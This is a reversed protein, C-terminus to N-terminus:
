SCFFISQECIEIGELQHKKEELTPCILIAKNCNFKECFQQLGKGIKQFADPRYKVEVPIIQDNEIKVFDVEHHYTDRWFYQYPSLSIIFNEALKGIDVFDAIATCFSPSALFFKKHRKESSLQNRSFNYIKKVLFSEELYYFYNALTKNSFGITQALGQYDIINGPSQGIIRTIKWLLEPHDVPFVQPIDEYIIKKLVSTLYEKKDSLSKMGITEIFQSALYIEFEAKIATAFLFPKRALEEKDCFFLYENFNLPALYLSFIRGALSEQTKKKLFLSTSGSIFFKINPYLDYYVKLQNQFNPVKQIEDLFIYLTKTTKYDIHTAQQFHLFLEDLNLAFEDFSFYWINEPLTDQDLLHNILQFLLTTKGTRRLGTLEIIQRKPLYSLLKSFFDRKKPYYYRFKSEWHRNYKLLGIELM